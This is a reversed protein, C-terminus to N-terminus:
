LLKVVTTSLSFLAEECFFNPPLSPFSIWAVAISTEEELKFMPEWKFTHMPYSWNQHTIHFTPKSLLHLYDELLLMRILIHKNNLLGINCDGKLEYQKPILRRLDQM